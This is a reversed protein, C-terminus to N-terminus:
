FLKFRKFYEVVDAIKDKAYPRLSICTTISEPEEVWVTHDINKSVLHDIIEGVDKGKIKLVVKTMLRVNRLYEVTDPHDRYREISYVSSHCAQAILAGRSFNLDNRLLIYQVIAM